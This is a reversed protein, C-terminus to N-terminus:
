ESPIGCRMNHPEQPPAPGREATAQRIVLALLLTSLTAFQMAIMYKSSIYISLCYSAKRADTYKMDTSAVRPHSPRHLFSQRKISIETLQLTKYPANREPLAIMFCVGFRM